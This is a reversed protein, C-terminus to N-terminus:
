TFDIKRVIAIITQQKAEWNCLTSNGTDIHNANQKVLIFSKFELDRM